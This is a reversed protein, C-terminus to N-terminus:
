QLARNLIVALRVGARALQLAVAQTAADVYSDPLRYYGPREPPPLADYGLAKGVEFAERAWDAPAGRRWRQLDQPAIRAILRAALADPDAGLRQVFEVDWYFHLSAWQLGPASVHRSNGGADHDDIAHLPQHLDGVLHLLFQLARLREESSTGSVHLEREFQGIKDIICANAPGAAAETGPPLPPSGFCAASLDPAEREM